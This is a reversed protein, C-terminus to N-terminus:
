KIGLIADVTFSSSKSNKEYNNSANKNLETISASLNMCNYYQNPFNHHFPFLNPYLMNSRLYTTFFNSQDNLHCLNFMQNSYNSVDTQIIESHVLKRKKLLSGVSNQKRNEVFESRVSRQLSRLHRQYTKKQELLNAEISSLNTPSSISSNSASQQRRLAVQTAMVKQREVVLLCSSCNCDKWRCYKKHGKLCSVIGHNRCRACKPTRLIRKMNSDFVKEVVIDSSM